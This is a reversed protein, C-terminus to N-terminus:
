CRYITFHRKQRKRTIPGYVKTYNRMGDRRQAPKSLRIIDDVHRKSTRVGLEVLMDSRHLAYIPSASVGSV